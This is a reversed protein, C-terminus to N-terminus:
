WFFLAILISLYVDLGTSFSDVPQASSNFHDVGCDEFLSCNLTISEAIFALLTDAESAIKTWPSVYRMISETHTTLPLLAFPDCLVRIDSIDSILTFSAKTKRIVVIDRKKFHYPRTLAKECAAASPTVLSAADSGFDGNSSTLPNPVICLKGMRSQGHTLILEDPGAYGNWGCYTQIADLPVWNLESIDEVIASCIDVDKVSSFEFSWFKTASMDAQFCYACFVNRFVIGEVQVPLYHLYTLSDTPNTLLCHSRFFSTRKDEPCDGVMYYGIGHRQRVGALQTSVCHLFPAIDGPQLTAQPDNQGMVSPDKLLSCCDGIAHCYQDCQCAGLQTSVDYLDFRTRVHCSFDKSDLGLFFLHYLHNVTNSYKPNVSSLGHWDQISPYLSMSCPCQRQTIPQVWEISQQDFSRPHISLCKVMNIGVPIWQYTM